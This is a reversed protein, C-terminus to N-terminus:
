RWTAVAVVVVPAGGGMAPPDWSAQPDLPVAALVLPVVAMPLCLLLAAVVLLQAVLHLRV